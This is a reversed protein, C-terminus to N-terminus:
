SPITPESGIQYNNQDGTAAYISRKIGRATKHLLKPFQIQQNKMDREQSTINNERGEGKAWLQGMAKRSRTM